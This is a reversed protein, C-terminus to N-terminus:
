TKAGSAVDAMTSAIEGLRNGWKEANDDELSFVEDAVSDIQKAFDELWGGLRDAEAEHERAEQRLQDLEDADEPPDGLYGELQMRWRAIFRGASAADTVRHLDQLCHGRDQDTDLNGSRTPTFLTMSM